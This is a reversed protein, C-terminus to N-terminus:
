AFLSTGQLLHLLPSRRRQPSAGIEDLRHQDQQTVLESITNDEDDVTEKLQQIERENQTQYPHAM